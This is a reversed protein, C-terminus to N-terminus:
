KGIVQFLLLKAIKMPVFLNQKEQSLEADLEESSYLGEIIEAAVRFARCEAIRTGSMQRIESHLGQSSVDEAIVAEAKKIEGDTATYEKLIQRLTM